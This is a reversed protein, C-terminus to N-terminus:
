ASNGNDKMGLQKMGKRLEDQDVVGGQFADSVFEHTPSDSTPQGDDVKDEMSSNRDGLLYNSILPNLTLLSM